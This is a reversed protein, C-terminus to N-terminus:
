TAMYRDGSRRACWHPLVSQGAYSLAIGAAACFLLYASRYPHSWDAWPPALVLLPLVFLAMAGLALQLRRVPWLLAGTNQLLMLLPFWCLQLAGALLGWALGGRLPRGQQQALEHGLGYLVLLVLSSLGTLLLVQLGRILPM